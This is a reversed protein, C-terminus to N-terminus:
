FSGVLAIKVKDGKKQIITAYNFLISANPTLGHFYLMFNRYSANKGGYNGNYDCDGHNDPLYRHRVGALGELNHLPIDARYCAPKRRKKIVRSVGGGGKGSKM